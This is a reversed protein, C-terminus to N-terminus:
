LYKSQNTREDGTQLSFLFIKTIGSIIFESDTTKLKKNSILLFKQAPVWIHM